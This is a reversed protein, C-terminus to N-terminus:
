WQRTRQCVRRRKSETWVSKIEIGRHELSMAEGGLPSHESQFLSWTVWWLSAHLSLGLPLFDTQRYRYTLTYRKDKKLIKKRQCAQHKHKNHATTNKDTATQRHTDTKINREKNGRWKKKLESRLPIVWHFLYNLMQPFLSILNRSGVSVLSFKFWWWCKQLSHHFSEAALEQNARKWSRCVESIFM